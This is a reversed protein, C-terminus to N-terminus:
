FLFQKNRFAVSKKIVKFEHILERHVIGLNHLAQVRDLVPFFYRLLWDKTLDEEPFFNEESM